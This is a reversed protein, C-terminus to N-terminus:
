SREKEAPMTESSEKKTPMTESLVASAIILVAGVWALASMPEHFVVLSVIIATVSELYGLIAVAQVPLGIVGAFYLINALATYVAGLIIVVILTQPDQPVPISHETILLYVGIVVSAAVLQWFVRDLPPIYSMKRSFVLIGVFTLSALMGFILGIFSDGSSGVAAPVGGELVGSVFVVGAFSTFIFPLKRMDLKEHLVLPAIAVTIVPATYNILSAISIPIKVYAGFLFIWNLGLSAGSLILWKMNERVADRDQKQGRVKQYLFIFLAGFVGRYFALAESPFDAYRILISISGYICVAMIYEIRAASASHEKIEDHM